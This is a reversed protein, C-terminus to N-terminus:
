GNHGPTKSISKPHSNRRFEIGSRTFWQVCFDGLYGKVKGTPVKKFGSHWRYRDGSHAKEIPQTGPGIANPAKEITQRGPGIANPAKEIAQTGSVIAKCAKLQFLKLRGSIKGSESKIQLDVVANV